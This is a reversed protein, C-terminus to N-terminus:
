NAVSSNWFTNWICNTNLQLDYKCICHISPENSIISMRRRLLINFCPLLYYDSVIPHHSTRVRDFSWNLFHYCAGHINSLLLCTNGINKLLPLWQTQSVLHNIKNRYSWLNLIAVKLSNRGMSDPVCYIIITM